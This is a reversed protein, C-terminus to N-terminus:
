QVVLPRVLVAEAGLQLRVFYHGRPLSALDLPIRNPGAAIRVATRIGTAQGSASFVALTARDYAVRSHLEVFTTTRVPNPYLTAAEIGTPLDAVDTVTGEDSLLAVSLGTAAGEFDIFQLRFTRGDARRVFYVLDDPINWTFTNLDFEKWDYGIADLTDNYATLDTPVAVTAPDVGSLEAVRVGTNHLVGTLTYDLLNGEGDPLPTTYRTFTLDWTAPELDRVGASFSFYALTKGSFDAKDVTTTQEESGDANAYHFTYVGGALSEIFLKRWVQDRGRLFFIRSGTVTQTAPSYSGWGLDFPDGPTAVHNLAGAAWSAEDNYIRETIATTDATAFDTASSAYLEVQPPSDTQSSVVGENVFIASSFGAVGFAIDWDTLDIATTTRTDLDVFVQQSYGPGQSIEAFQGLLPLGTLVLCFLLSSRM